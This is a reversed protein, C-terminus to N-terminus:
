SVQERQSVRTKACHPAQTATEYEGPERYSTLYSNSASAPQAGIECIQSLGTSVRRRETENGRAENHRIAREVNQSM